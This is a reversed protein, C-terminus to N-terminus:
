STPPIFNKRRPVNFDKNYISDIYLSMEEDPLVDHNLEAVSKKVDVLKVDYYLAQWALLYIIELSYKKDPTRDYEIM